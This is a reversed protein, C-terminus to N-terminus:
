VLRVFSEMVDVMSEVDVRSVITRKKDASRGVKECIAIL